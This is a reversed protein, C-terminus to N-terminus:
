PRWLKSRQDARNRQPNWVYGCQHCRWYTASTIEKALTGVAKSGCEPCKDPQPIRSDAIRSQAVLFRNRTQGTAGDVERLRQAIRKQPAYTWWFAMVLLLWGVIAVLYTVAMQSGGDNWVPDAPTSTHFM